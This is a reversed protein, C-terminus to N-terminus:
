ADDGSRTFQPESPLDAVSGVVLDQPLRAFDERTLHGSLVGISLAGASRAARVDVATDGAAAVEAVDHVSTVEMARFIMDPAPRGAAVTDASIAADVTAAPDGDAVTWGMGALIADTISTAFGTTLAVKIGRSRLERIAEEVGPLATPPTARYTEHLTTLFWDFAAEVREDTVEVGGIQMLNRIAWRKETGMWEQFQEDTFQAGERQAAERLVRYVADGEDITTGAMDLAALSIM